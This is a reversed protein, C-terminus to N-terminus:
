LARMVASSELNYTINIPGGLGFTPLTNGIIPQYTYVATVRIHGGGADTVTVNGTSLGPLLSPGGNIDGAVVLNRTASSLAGTIRVVGTDGFNAHGACYRAGDRVAKVLTTYQFLTRGMETVGFMLLLMVPIVVVMEIFAIGSERWGPRRSGPRLQRFRNM